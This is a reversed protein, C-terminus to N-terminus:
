YLIFSQRKQCVKTILIWDVSSWNWGRCPKGLLKMTIASKNRPGLASRCLSTNMRRRAITTPGWQTWGYCWKKVIKMSCYLPFRISFGYATVFVSLVVFNFRFLNGAAINIVRGTSHALFYADPSVSHAFQPNGYSINYIGIWHGISLYIWPPLAAATRHARFCWSESLDISGNCQGLLLGFVNLNKKKM